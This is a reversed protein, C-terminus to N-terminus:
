AATGGTLRTMKATQDQLSQLAENIQEETSEPDNIVANLRDLQRQTNQVQNAVHDKKARDPKPM